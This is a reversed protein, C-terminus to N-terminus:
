EILSKDPYVGVRRRGWNNLGGRPTQLSGSVMLVPDTDLKYLDPVVLKRLRGQQGKDVACVIIHTLKCGIDRNSQTQKEYCMTSVM